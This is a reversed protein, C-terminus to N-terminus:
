FVNELSSYISKIDTTLTNDLEQMKSWEEFEILKPKLHHNDVMNKIYKRLM